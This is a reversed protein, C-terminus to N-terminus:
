TCTQKIDTGMNWEALSFYTLYDTNNNLQACSSFCANLVSESKKESKNYLWGQPTILEKDGTTM